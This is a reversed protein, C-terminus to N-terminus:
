IITSHRVLPAAFDGCRKRMVLCRVSGQRGSAQRGLRSGCQQLHLLILAMISKVAGTQLWFYAPPPLTPMPRAM